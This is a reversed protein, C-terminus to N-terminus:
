AAEGPNMAEVLTDAVDMLRDMHQEAFNRDCATHLPEHGGYEVVVNCIAPINKGNVVYDEIRGTIPGRTVITNEM